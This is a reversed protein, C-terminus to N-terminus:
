KQAFVLRSALHEFKNRTEYKIYTKKKENELFLYIKYNQIIVVSPQTHM